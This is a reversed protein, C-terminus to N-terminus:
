AVGRAAMGEREALWDPLRDRGILADYDLRPRVVAYRTGKVMVEPAPLRSNYTSAMVSAYAGASCIALLEGAALPPLPRARAFIDASECVPGVVDAPARAAGGAPEKLPVIEHYADYLAPRILDNMAADVIVFRHAAGEKMYVVRTVLVGANGVLFRGPEFTLAVDLGRTAAKATAAYDEVSPPNEKHYAIGLGGGLDVRRIDHGEARLARVLGAVREFAQRYPALDTLQSGIHVAVGRMRLNPMAAGRAYLRSADDMPVGFKNEKKGTTIKAHTHADVDPNIRVAIAIERGLARTVEDLLELEPESEVNIQHIGTQLAFAIEARTKGVGSFVIRSPPVGAALAIRLEGESVVDAGAGEAALSRVVALTSNAKLAYCITADVDALANAFARYRGTIAASSYCYFPTGVEEAIRALSVEEAHLMGDRYAFETM